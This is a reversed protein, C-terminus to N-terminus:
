HGGDRGGADLGWGADVALAYAQYAFVALVAAVAGWLVVAFGTPGLTM